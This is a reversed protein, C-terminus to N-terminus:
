VPEKALLRAAVASRFKRGGLSLFFVIWSPFPRFAFVSTDFERHVCRLYQSGRGKVVAKIGRERHQCVYNITALLRLTAPPYGTATLNHYLTDLICRMQPLLEGGRNLYHSAQGSHGRVYTINARSIAWPRSRGLRSWFEFDGSYPLDTRFWGANRVAETRILVNSLNGPICGFIFFLLDSRNPTVVSPLVSGEYDILRQNAGALHNARLFAIEPSLGSWYQLLRGLAGSDIFYDDQCLIQTIEATAHAFLFNLNGFINLNAPQFHIQVRPDRLSALYERTGDTSCDDSIILEWDQHEQSLVSDVAEKLYKMGNYTPMVISIRM